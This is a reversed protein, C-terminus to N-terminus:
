RTGVVAIVVFFLLVVGLSPLCEGIKVLGGAVEGSEEGHLAELENTEDREVIGGSLTDVHRDQLATGGTDLDDHNSTIM